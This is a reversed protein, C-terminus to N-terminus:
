VISAMFFSWDRVAIIDAKCVASKGGSRIECRFAGNCM